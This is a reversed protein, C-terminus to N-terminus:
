DVIIADAPMEASKPVLALTYGCVDAIAALTDAKPISGKAITTGIFMESRGMQMSLARYSLGGRRALERISDTANM